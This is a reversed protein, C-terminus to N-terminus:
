HDSMIINRKLYSNIVETIIQRISIKNDTTLVKGQNKRDDLSADADPTAIGRRYARNSANAYYWANEIVYNGNVLQVSFYWLRKGKRKIYLEATKGNNLSQLIPTRQGNITTIIRQEMEHITKEISKDVMEQTWTNPYALLTNAYFTAIDNIAEQSILVM